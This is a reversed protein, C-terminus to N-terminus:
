RRTWWLVTSITSIISLGITTLRLSLDSASDLKSGRPKVYVIDNQQLYFAPSQYLEKSYLNVAYVTRAGTSTRIVLVDKLNASTTLDGAQAIAQLLNIHNGEISMNGKSGVEGLMTVKFNNMDVTVVPNDLLRRSVLESSVLAKVGSLNREAVRLKGLVPLDIEGNEDVLYTHDQANIQTGGNEDISLTGGVSNFPASLAPNKSAIVIDLEDGPRVVLEPAEPVAFTEGPKLDQM